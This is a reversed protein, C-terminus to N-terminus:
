DSTKHVLSSFQPSFPSPSSSSFPPRVSYEVDVDEREEQMAELQALLADIYADSRTHYEDTSLPTPSPAPATTTLFRHHPPHPPTPFPPRHPLFTYTPSSTHHHRHPPHNHITTLTKSLPLHFRPPPHPLITHPTSIITPNPVHIRPM